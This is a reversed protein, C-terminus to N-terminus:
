LTKDNLSLEDNIFHLCELYLTICQNFLLPYFSRLLFHNLIWSFYSSPPALILNRSSFQRHFHAHTHTHAFTKKKKKQEAINACLWKCLVSLLWFENTSCIFSWWLFSFSLNLSNVKLSASSPSSSYLTQLFWQLLPKNTNRAFQIKIQSGKKTKRQATIVYRRYPLALM